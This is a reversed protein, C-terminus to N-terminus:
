RTTSSSRTVGSGIASVHGIRDERRERLEALAESAARVEVREDLAASLPM